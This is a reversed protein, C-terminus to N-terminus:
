PRQIETFLEGHPQPGKVEEVGFGKFWNIEDMSLLRMKTMSAFNVLWSINKDHGPGGFAMLKLAKMDDDEQLQAGSVGSREMVLAIGGAYDAWPFNDAPDSKQSNVDRHRAIPLPGYLPRILSVLVYDLAKLQIGPFPDTGNGWNELEIGIAFGNISGQCDFKGNWSSRGAHWARRNTPVGAYIVGSKTIYFHISVEATGWLTGIDGAESGATHHLLVVEPTIFDGCYTDFKNSQKNVVQPM